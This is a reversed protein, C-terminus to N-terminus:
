MSRCSDATQASSVIDGGGGGSGEPEKGEPEEKRFGVGRGVRRPYTPPHPSPPLHPIFRNQLGNGGKGREGSALLTWGETTNPPPPTHDTM